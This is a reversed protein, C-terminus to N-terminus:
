KLLDADIIIEGLDNEGPRVAVEVIGKRDKSVEGGIEMRYITGPLKHWVQFKHTGVPLNEITFNGEEDSVAMYPSERVIVSATMWPFIGNMVDMPYREEVTFVRSRKEGPKLLFNFAANAFGAINFNHLVPDANMFEVAQGTQVISIQPKYLCGESAIEVPMKKLADYMSHPEPTAQGRDVYLWVAVDKLGDNKGIRLRPDVLPDACIAAVRRPVALAPLAAPQGKVVFRGTITGWQQAFADQAVFGLVILTLLAAYVTKM